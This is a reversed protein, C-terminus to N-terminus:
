DTEDRRSEDAEPREHGIERRHDPTGIPAPEPLERGEAYALYIASNILGIHTFAQPFNGLFIGSRPDVQESFLGVHNARCALGEFIKWAEDMRGSLALVDVMWFTCLGFAGEPGEIGDDAHYRYVLGNETLRELTRDITSQVRPDDFPLLERLPILLNAADLEDSGYHLVFAGVDEDYGRELIESRVESRVEKWREVDGELVGMGALHVARDLAVWVMLKSYVFHEPPKRMEWISWDPETWKETARDAVQVLFRRVDDSLEV